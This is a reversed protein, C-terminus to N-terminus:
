RGKKIFRGTTLWYWARRGCIAFVVSAAGAGIATFWLLATM